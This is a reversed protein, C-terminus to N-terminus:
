LGDPAAVALVAPLGCFLNNRLLLFQTITLLRYMDETNSASMQILFEEANHDKRHPVVSLCRQVEPKNVLEQRGVELGEYGQHRLSVVELIVEDRVLPWRPEICLTLLLSQDPCVFDEEQIHQKWLVNGLDDKNISILNHARIDFLQPVKIQLSIDITEHGHSICIWIRLAEAEPLLAVPFTVQSPSRVMNRRKKHDVQNLEPSSGGSLGQPSHVILQAAIGIGQGVQVLVQGVECLM